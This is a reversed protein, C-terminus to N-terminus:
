GVKKVTLFTSDNHPVLNVPAAAGDTPSYKMWLAKDTVDLIDANHKLIEQKIRGMSLSPLGLAEFLQGTREVFRGNRDEEPFGRKRAVGQRGTVSAAHVEGSSVQKADRVHDDKEAPAVVETFASWWEAQQESFSFAEVNGDSEPLLESISNIGAEDDFPLSVGLVRAQRRASEGFSSTVDSTVLVRGM